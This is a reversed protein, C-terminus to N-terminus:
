PSRESGSTRARYQGRPRPSPRIIERSDRRYGVLQFCNTSPWAEEYICRSSSSCRSLKCARNREQKPSYTGNIQRQPYGRSGDVDRSARHHDTASHKWPIRSRLEPAAASLFIASRAVRFSSPSKASATLCVAVASVIGSFLVRGPAVLSVNNHFPRQGKMRRLRRQRTLPHSRNEVDSAATRRQKKRGVQATIRGPRVPPMWPPYRWPTQQPAPRRNKVPRPRGNTRPRTVPAMVVSPPM